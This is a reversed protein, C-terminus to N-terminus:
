SHVGFELRYTLDLVAQTNAHNDLMDIPREHGLGPIKKTMWEVALKRDGDFLQTARSTVEILNYLRGSETMTFRGLKKRRRLTTPSIHLADLISAQTMEMLSVITYFVEIQFGRTVQERLLFDDSPLDLEEWIDLGRPAPIYKRPKM